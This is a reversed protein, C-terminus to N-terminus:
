SGEQRPIGAVQDELWRAADEDNTILEAPLPAVPVVRHLRVEYGRDLLEVIEDPVVLLRVGGQPDPLRDLSLEAVRALPTDAAGPHV